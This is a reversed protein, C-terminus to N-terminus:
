GTALDRRRLGALGVTVLAGAVLAIVLLPAAAFDVVPVNPTRNFPSADTLWGPLELLDGLWGIVVCLAMAAWAAAAARPLWGFLLVGVGGLVLCAPLYSVQALALTAADGADGSVLAYTAACGVGAATLVAGTGLATVALWGLAWRSRTLPTALLPEARLAAEETRLRLASSVTFGSALLATLVFIMAFYADLIGAGGSTRRFIEELQENGSIMDLVDQGLSGFAVGMLGVGTVWGTVAGRQLRWALGTSTGLWPTADAPGPRPAVLGAGIDRRTTLWGGVATLGVALVLTLALPWWREDGFAAVQQAWGLPSLWVLWSRQVDGVARLLYALGLVAMALGSAARSHESVQAAVLAVGTFVLGVSAVSAGYVLSGSAPLGAALFSAAVGLGVLLSAGAVVLGTALLDANRGLVGARLLETRGAEEDTRTHRLTLLVAMLAIGIIATPTVEFVTIGGTTELATPPGTMAISAGSSGVTAAYSARAAPTDYLGQVAAVSYATLGVLSVVWVPLRVRDRRLILRVLTATGTFRSM